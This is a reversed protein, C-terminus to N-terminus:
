KFLQYVEERSMKAIKEVEETTSCAVAIKQLTKMHEDGRSAVGIAVKIINGNGWDLGDPYTFIAIGPHLIEDTMSEIAHPLSLENGIATNFVKEKELMAETYRDTVYGSEQLVEGMKRIVEEKTKEPANVRVNKLLLVGGRYDEARRGEEQKEESEAGSKRSSKWLKIM